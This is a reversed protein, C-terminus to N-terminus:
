CHAWCGTCSIHWCQSPLKFRCCLHGHILDQCGPQVVSLVVLVAVLLVLLLLV